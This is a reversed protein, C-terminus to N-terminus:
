QHIEDSPFERSLTAKALIHGISNSVIASYTYIGPNCPGQTHIAGVPVIHNVSLPVEQGGLESDKQTLTIRVLAAGPPVNQLRIEPSQFYGTCADKPQRFSFTISMPAAPEFAVAPTWSMLLMLISFTKM